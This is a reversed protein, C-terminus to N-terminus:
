NQCVAEEKLADWAEQIPSELAIISMTRDPSQNLWDGEHRHWYEIVSSRWGGSNAVGPFLVQGGWDMRAYGFKRCARRIAARQEPTLEVNPKLDEPHGVRIQQSFPELMEETFEM